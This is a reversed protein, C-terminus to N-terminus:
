KKNKVIIEKFFVIVPVVTIAIFSEAFGNNYLNLGGNLHGIFISVSVHLFGVVIGWGWGYKGSIPALGTSFPISLANAPNTLELHNFHTAAISGILIPITNKLHKGAASFGAVTFIGGM